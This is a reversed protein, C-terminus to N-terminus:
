ADEEKWKEQRPPLRAITPSNLSLPDDMIREDMVESTSPLRAKHHPSVPSEPFSQSHHLNRQSNRSFSRYRNGIVQAHPWLDPRSESQRRIMPAPRESSGNTSISEDDNVRNYFLLYASSKIREVDSEDLLRTTSDNFEYWQDDMRHKAAAWYHGQGMQGVHNAVAYLDYRPAHSDKNKIFSGVMWDQIPFSIAANNKSAVLGFDNTRFRKFHVILIPPLIWLDIKKTADRHTQCKSCYWQNEGTLREEKLFLRLCDDLSKCTKDIPLSLYMVAEFRINQHGCHLCKLCNRLQGQFIDVVVSKDRQLYSRWADAADKADNSGDCDKYEIYPKKKVRNLDEHIGDLLISLFEQADHQCNGQFQPAFGELENKFSTPRIIRSAPAEIWVTRVLKAFAQVLKGKSGLPNHVHLEHKHGENLFYDALPITMSLCQLASNMYCTNGLNRLGVVGTPIESGSRESALEISSNARANLFNYNSARMTKNSGPPSLPPAPPLSALVLSKGKLPPPTTAPRQKKETHKRKGVQRTDGQRPAKRKGDHNPPPTTSVAKEKSCDAGM